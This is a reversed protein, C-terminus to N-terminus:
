GAQLTFVPMEGAIKVLGERHYNRPQGLLDKLMTYEAHNQITLLIEDPIPMEEDPADAFAKEAVDRTLDLARNCLAEDYQRYRWHYDIYAHCKGQNAARTVLSSAQLREPKFHHRVIAGSCYAMRCGAKHLQYAHLTDEAFGLAGPGLEPDYGEVVNMVKRHWAKNAGVLDTRKELVHTTDAMFSRLLTSMWPRKLHDAMEVHGQATDSHGRKLPELIAMLWGPGFLVDDDTFVMYETESAHIVSNMARAKGQRAEAYYHLQILPHTVSEVLAKTEERCANDVIWVEVPEDNRAIESVMSELTKSLPGENAYTALYISVNPEM